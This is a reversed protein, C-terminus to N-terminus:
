LFFTRNNIYKASLKNIDEQPSVIKTADKSKLAMSESTKDKVGRGIWHSHHLAIIEKLDCVLGAGSYVKHTYIDASWGSYYPPMLWGLSEVAKRGLIPFASYNSISNPQDSTFGYHMGSPFLNELKNWAIEDWNKTIIECDDNLIFIYKGCSKEFLWNQYDISISNGRKRKHLNVWSYNLTPITTDDEDVGVLMEIENKTNTEVSRCLRELSFPRERSPLILSFKIDYSRFADKGM